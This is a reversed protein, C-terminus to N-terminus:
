TQMELKATRFFHGFQHKSFGMKKSGFDVTIRFLFIFGCNQSETCGPKSGDRPRQAMGQFWPTTGHATM